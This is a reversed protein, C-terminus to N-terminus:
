HDVSQSEAPHLSPANLSSSQQHILVSLRYAVLEDGTDAAFAVLRTLLEVPVSSVDAVALLETELQKGTASLRYQREAYATDGTRRAWDAIYYRTRWDLPHLRLSEEFAERAFELNGTRLFLWGRARWFRFDADAAPKAQALLEAVSLSKGVQVAQGLDYALVQHNEPFMQRLQLLFGARQIQSQRMAEAEAEELSPISGELNRAKNLAYAVMLLEKRERRNMWQQLRDLANSLRIGDALFAYIYFEPLDCEASAADRVAALLEVPQTTVAYFFILRQRTTVSQPDLEIIAQWTRAASEPDQLRGIELDARMQLWPIDEAREHPYDRLFQMTSAADRLERGATAGAQLVERRHPELSKWAQATVLLHPWNRNTAFRECEARLHQLHSTRWWRSGGWISSSILICLFAWTAMRRWRSPVVAIDASEVDM